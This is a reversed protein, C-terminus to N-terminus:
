NKHEMEDLDRFLESEARAKEEEKKAKLQKRQYGEIQMQQDISHKDQALKTQKAAQLKEEERAYHVRLSEERRVRVEERSLGGVLISDWLKAEAKFLNVELKDDLLTM